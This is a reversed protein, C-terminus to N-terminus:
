QHNWVRDLFRIMFCLHLHPFPSFSIWSGDICPKAVCVIYGIVQVTSDSLTKKGNQSHLWRLSRSEALLFLATVDDSLLNM